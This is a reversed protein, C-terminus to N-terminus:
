FPPCPKYGFPNPRSKDKQDPIVLNPRHPVTTNMFKAKYGPIKKFANQIYGFYSKRIASKRPRLYPLQKDLILHKHKGIYAYVKGGVFKTNDFKNTVDRRNYIWERRDFGPLDSKKIIFVAGSVRKGPAPQINLYIINEPFIKSGSLKDKYFFYKYKGKNTM